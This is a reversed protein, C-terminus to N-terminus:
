CDLLLDIYACQVLQEETVSLKSMIETAESIGNSHNENEALVVELELFSGLNKVEDIHIRTRGNLYLTRTKEVEGKVGLSEALVRRMSGPDSVSTVQYYSGTPDPRDERIYYILQGSGNLFDRLKLRGTAVNFFTDRQNIEDKPQESLISAISHANELDHIKAKIEINKPM